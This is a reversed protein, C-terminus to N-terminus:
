SRRAAFRVEGHDNGPTAAMGVQLLHSGASLRISFSYTSKSSARVAALRTLKGTSSVSYLTVVYGAKNPLVTGSIVQNVTHSGTPASVYIRVAVLTRRAASLSAGNRSDGAYTATYTANHVPAFRYSYKGTADTAVTAVTTVVGSDSRAKLVVKGAAVSKDTRTVTGTLTIPNGRLVRGPLSGLSVTSTWRPTVAPASASPGAGRLNTARVSVTYATGNVLGTFGVSTATVTKTVAGPNLTATYSTVPRGNSAPAAWTTTLAKDGPTSTLATVAGPVGYPTATAPASAPGAGATTAARVTFTYGVGNALGTVTATTATGDAPYTTTGTVTGSNPTVSVSYSKIPTLTAGSPATWSLDAQGAAATVSAVLGTPAGPVAPLPTVPASTASAPSSGVANVAVVYFSYATGNTLGTVTTSTTAVTKKLTGDALYVQYSTIPSGGNGQPTWTLAASADGATATVDKPADPVSAPTAAVPGTAPGTGVPNVAAVTFSYSTGNVLGTVQATTGEVTVEPTPDPASGDSTKNVTVDYGSVDLGGDSIPADWKLNVVGNGRTAALNRPVSPLDGISFAQEATASGGDNAPTNTVTVDRAGLPSATPSVTVPVTITTASITPSGTTIGPGFAIAVGGTNFGTGTITVTTPGTGIRQVDPSVTDITPAAKVTFCSSCTAMGGDGNTVTFSRAGAVADQAVTVPVVFSGSAVSTATGATVGTGSFAVSPTGNFGSGSITVNVTPSGAARSAPSAGTATPAANVTLCNLVSCEGTQTSAGDTNTLVIGRPGASAGVTNLTFKMQNRSIWQSSVQTPGTSGIGSFTLTAGRALDTGNVTLVYAPNGAAITSPSISTLHPVAGAVTLANAKHGTSGDPLTVRVAWAGNGPAIGDVDFDATLSTATLNRVNTGVVDPQGARQLVPVAGAAFNVGTITLAQSTTDNTVITPSVTSVALDEVTLCSGHSATFCEVISGNKDLYGLRYTGAPAGAPIDLTGTLTKGSNTAVAAGSMTWDPHGFVFLKPTVYSNSTSATGDKGLSQTQFGSGTLTITVSSTNIGVSTPSSSTIVPAASPTMQTSGANVGLDPNALHLDRATLPADGALTLTLVASTLGTVQVNNVTIGTSPSFAATMGTQFGAGKLTVPFSVSGQGPNDDDFPANSDLAPRPSLTLVSAANGYGDGKDLAIIGYHDVTSAITTNSPDSITVDLTVSKAVADYTKSNVKTANPNLAESYFGFSTTPTLGVGTVLLSAHQVGYGLKAPTGVSQDTRRVATVKPVQLCGTCTAKKGDTNTAVVDYTGGNATPDIALTGVVSSGSTGTTTWVVKPDAVGAQLFSLTTGVAFNTGTLTFSAPNSGSNSTRGFGNATPVAGTVTFCSACSYVSGDLPPNTVKADYLGPAAATLTVPATLKKSDSPDVQAPSSNTITRSPVGHYTLVVSAGPLFSSGTTTFTLTQASSSNNPGYNPSVSLDQDAALATGGLLGTSILGSAVLVGLVRRTRSM